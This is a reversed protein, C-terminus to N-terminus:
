MAVAWFICVLSYYFVFPQRAVDDWRCWSHWNINVYETLILQQMHIIRGIHLNLSRVLFFYIYICIRFHFTRIQALAFSSWLVSRFNAMRPPENRLENANAWTCRFSFLLPLPHTVSSGTTDDHLSINLSSCNIALASNLGRYKCCSSIVNDTSQVMLQGEQFCENSVRSFFTMLLRMWAKRTKM